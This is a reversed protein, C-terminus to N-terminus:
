SILECCSCVLLIGCLFRSKTWIKIVLWISYAQGIQNLRLQYWKMMCCVLMEVWAFCLLEWFSMCVQSNTWPIAKGEHAVSFSAKLNFNGQAVVGAAINTYLTHSRWVIFYFRRYYEIGPNQCNNFILLLLTSWTFILLRAHLNIVTFYIQLCYL